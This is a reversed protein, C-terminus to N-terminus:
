ENCGGRKANLIEVAEDVSHVVCVPHGRWFSHWAQQAPRPDEGPAKVELLQDIGRFGVLLDPASGGQDGLDLVSAGAQRLAAVIEAHGNDRRGHKM